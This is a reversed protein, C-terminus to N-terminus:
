RCIRPFTFQAIETNFDSPNLLYLTEAEVYVPWIGYYGRADILSRELLDAKLADFAPEFDTLVHREFDVDSMAGRCWHQRYLTTRDVADLLGGSAWTLIDGTGYFLPDIMDGHQVAPPTPMDHETDM